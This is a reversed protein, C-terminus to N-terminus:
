FGRFSGFSEFSVGRRSALPDRLRVGEGGEGRARRREAALRRLLRGLPVRVAGPADQNQKRQLNPPQSLPPRRPSSSGGEEGEVEGRRGQFFFFFFRFLPFFFFSEFSSFFHM